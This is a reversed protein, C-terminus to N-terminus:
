LSNLDTNIFTIMYLTQSPSDQIISETMLITQSKKLISMTRTCVNQYRKVADSYLKRKLSPNKPLSKKSCKLPCNKRNWSWKKRKHMRTKQSLREKSPKNSTSSKKWCNWLGADRKTYRQSEEPRMKLWVTKSYGPM